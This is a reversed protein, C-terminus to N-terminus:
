AKFASSNKYTNAIDDYSFISSHTELFYYSITECCPQEQFLLKNQCFSFSAFEAISFVQYNQITQMLFVNLKTPHEWISQFTLVKSGEWFNQVTAIREQKKQLEFRIWTAPSHIQYICM